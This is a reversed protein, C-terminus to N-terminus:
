LRGYHETECSFSLKDWINQGHSYIFYKMKLMGEMIISNSLLHRKLSVMSNYRGDINDLVSTM